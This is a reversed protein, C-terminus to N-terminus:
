RWWALTLQLVVAVVNIATLYTIVKTMSLMRETLKGIEADHAVQDRRAIEHDYDQLVLKVHQAEWDRKDVLDDRSLDRLWKLSFTYGAPTKM